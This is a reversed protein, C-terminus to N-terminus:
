VTIHDKIKSFLKDKIGSVKMIDEICTFNGNESRYDVIKGAIGDGIGPLTKLEDISARNINVLSGDCVQSSCNGLSGDIASDFSRGDALAGAAEEKTPIQLKIGDSLPAALNVITKDADESFGGAAEIADVARHGEKLYYVGPENVAGCVFIVLEKDSTGGDSAESADSENQNALAENDDTIQISASELSDNTLIVEASNARRCGTLVMMLVLVTILINRM